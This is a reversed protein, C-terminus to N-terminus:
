KSGDGPAPGPEPFFVLKAKGTFIIRNGHDFVEFGSATLSGFPGQGSVPDQGRASGRALDIEAKRTRFEFGSDHFMNVGGELALIQQKKHYTGTLASVAIWSGDAMALDAKPRELEFSDGAGVRQMASDATVTFPRDEADSGTFRANVVQQGSKEHVSISSLGLRFTEPKDQLQPWIVVLAVVSAAFVPLLLKMWAVFRTYRAGARRLPQLVLGAPAAASRPTIEPQRYQATQETM